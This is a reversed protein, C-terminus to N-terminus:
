DALGLRTIFRFRLRNAPSPRLARYSRLDAYVDAIYNSFPKLGAEDGLLKGLFLYTQELEGINLDIIVVPVNLRQQLKNFKSFDSDPLHLGVILVDPNVSLVAEMNKTDINPIATYRDSLYYYHKQGPVDGKAILKDGCCTFLLVSTKPDYPIIREVKGSLSVTRGAMDTITRANLEFALLLLSFLAVIRLNM